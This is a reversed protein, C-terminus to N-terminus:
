VNDKRMSFYSDLSYRGSGYLLLFLSGALMSIAPYTSPYSDGMHVLIIAVLFNFIMIVAAWRVHYGVVFLVGCILQAYVSAIAAALPMMMGHAELFDRFELMREWSVVNDITGYILHFGVSLRIPLDAYDKWKEM